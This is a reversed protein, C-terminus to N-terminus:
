PYIAEMKLVDDVGQGNLSLIALACGAPLTRFFQGDLVQKQQTSISTSQGSHSNTPQLIGTSSSGSNEIRTVRQIEVTGLLRNIFNITAEDETRFCIKQRFNQLLANAMDREGIAAYFSSISQTSIIGVTKSSRSKDWFSLDSLGEKKASVIEQYEDCLLFVFRNQNWHPQSVRQQMLNFFRLKIFTYVVKGGLGWRSLPMNVLFVCGNLVDELRAGNEHVTCFADILEPHNFPSLVQAVTAKV